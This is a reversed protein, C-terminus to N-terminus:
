FVQATQSDKNENSGMFGVYFLVFPKHKEFLHCNSHLM